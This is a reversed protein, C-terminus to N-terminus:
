AVDRSSDLFLPKKKAMGPDRPYQKPTARIKEILILQREGADPLTLKHVDRVKGGLAELAQASEAVERVGSPGKMAILLGHVKLLPLAYEVLAGLHAVARAVAMNFTGRYESDRGLEEARAWVAQVNALGLADATERLFDVKKRVSDNVVVTIDPHRIALPIGPFGAGTGIDIMRDGARPQWVLEVTLSDLFHKIAVEAPDTIATLNVHQNRELLLALYQAFLEEDRPSLSLGLDAAANRLM